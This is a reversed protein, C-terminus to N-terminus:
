LGCVCIWIRYLAFSWRGTLSRCAGGAVDDGGRGVTMPGGRRYLGSHQDVRGLLLCYGYTGDGDWVVGKWGSM